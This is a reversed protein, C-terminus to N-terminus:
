LNVNLDDKGEGLTQVSSPREYQSMEVLSERSSLNGIERVWPAESVRKGRRLEAIFQHGTGLAWPCKRSSNSIM